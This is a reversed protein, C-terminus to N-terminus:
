YITDSYRVRSWKGPAIAPGRRVPRVWPELSMSNDSRTLILAPLGATSYSVIRPVTCKQLLTHILLVSAGTIQSRCFDFSFSIRLECCEENSVAIVSATGGVYNIRYTLSPLPSPPPSNVVRYSDLKNLLPYYQINTVMSAKAREVDSTM